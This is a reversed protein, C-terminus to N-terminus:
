TGGIRSTVFSSRLIRTEFSSDTSPTRASSSRSPIKAPMEQPATTWTARLIASSISSPTITVIRVSAPQFYREASKQSAGSSSSASDMSRVIQHHDRGLNAGRENRVRVRLQRVLGAPEDHELVVDGHLVHRALVCRGRG